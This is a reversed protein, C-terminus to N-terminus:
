PKQYNMLCKGLKKIHFPRWQKKYRKKFKEMNLTTKKEEDM